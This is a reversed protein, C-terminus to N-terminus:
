LNEEGISAGEGEIYLRLLAKKDAFDKFFIHLKPKHEPNDGLGLTFDSRQYDKYLIVQHNFADYRIHMVLGYNKYLTWRMVLPKQAQALFVKARYNQEKALTLDKQWVWMPQAAQAFTMVLLVLLWRM